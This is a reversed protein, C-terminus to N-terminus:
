FISWLKRRGQRRSRLIGAEELEKLANAVKQRGSKDCMGMRRALESTSIEKRRMVEALLERHFEELPCIRPLEMVNRGLYFCRTGKLQALYLAIISPFSGDIILIESGELMAWIMQSFTPLDPFEEVKFWPLDVEKPEECLVLKLERPSLEKYIRELSRGNIRKM